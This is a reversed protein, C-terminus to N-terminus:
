NLTLYFVSVIQFLIYIFSIYFKYNKEEKSFMSLILLIISCLTFIFVLIRLYGYLPNIPENFINVHNITALIIILSCIFSYITIRFAWNRYM